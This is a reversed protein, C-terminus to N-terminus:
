AQLRVKKGLEVKTPPPLNKLVKVTGDAYTEVLQGDVAELVSGSTVLAQVYAQKVAGEALKPIKSELAEMTKEDLINM